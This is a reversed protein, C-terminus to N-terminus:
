KPNGADDKPHDTEFQDEQILALERRMEDYALCGYPLNMVVWGIRAGHLESVWRVREQSDLTTVDAADVRRLHPLIQLEDPM